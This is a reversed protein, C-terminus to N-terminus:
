PLMDHHRDLESTTGAAGPWCSWCWVQPEALRPSTPLRPPTPWPPLPLPERAAALGHQAVHSTRCPDTHLSCLGRSGWAWNRWASDPAGAPGCWAQSVGHRTLCGAPLRCVAASHGPQLAQAGAIPVHRHTPRPGLGAHEDGGVTQGCRAPWMGRVRQVWQEPWQLLRRRGCPQGDASGTPYSM